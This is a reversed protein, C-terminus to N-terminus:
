EGGKEEEDADDEEDEDVDAAHAVPGNDFIPVENAEIEAIDHRRANRVEGQDVRNRLSQPQM